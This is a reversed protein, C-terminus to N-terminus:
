IILATFVSRGLGSGFMGGVTTTGQPLSPLARYSSLMCDMLANRLVTRHVFLFFLFKAYLSFYSIQCEVMANILYALIHAKRSLILNDVSQPLRLGGGIWGGQGKRVRAPLFVIEKLELM